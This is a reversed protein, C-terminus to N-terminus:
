YKNVLSDVWPQVYRLLHVEPLISSITCFNTSPNKMSLISFSFLMSIIPVYNFIMRVDKSTLGNLHKKALSSLETQDNEGDTQSDAVEPFRLKLQKFESIALMIAHTYALLPM